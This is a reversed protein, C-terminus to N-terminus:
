EEIGEFLEGDIQKIRDMDIRMYSGAIGVKRCLELQRHVTDVRRVQTHIIECCGGVKTKDPIFYLITVTPHEGNEIAEALMAIKQNLIDMETESLTFMEGVERAEEDVMEEYGSLAKYSSFQAAREWPSMHPYKASQWHPLNYIDAYLECGRPTTDQTM